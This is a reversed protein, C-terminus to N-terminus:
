ASASGRAPTEARAPLRAVIALVAGVVGCVATLVGFVPFGMTSIIWGGVAQSGLWGISAFTMNVGLLAGRAENSVESVAAVLSPRGVANAVTYVFGLLISIWLGPLWLLLPLALLGTAALSVAALATRSHLRDSLEGGVFNGALNGLAVLGLGVALVELSVGYGTTLYTALYVAVGGYCFREMTNASLLAVVRPTLLSRMSPTPASAAETRARAPQGPVAIWVLVAAIVILVGQIALAGRWGIFSGTYAVLPVGLVLSISQGTIMWGLARGREEPPVADSAAALATGMFAGGGFGGIVRSVFAVPIVTASALGLPALALGLLGAMLVPRRGLRDSAVGAFVSVIGWTISSVALLVGITSLDTDLDDAIDLLFPTMAIASVNALYTALVLPILVFLGSRQPKGSGVPPITTSVM